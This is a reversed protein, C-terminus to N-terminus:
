KKYYLDIVTQLEKVRHLPMAAIDDATYHTLFYENIERATM